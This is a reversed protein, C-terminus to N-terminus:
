RRLLMPRYSIDSVTDNNYIQFVRYEEDELIVTAPEGVDRFYIVVPDVPLGVIGVLRKHPTEWWKTEEDSLTAPDFRITTGTARLVHKRNDQLEMDFCPVDVPANPIQNDTIRHM